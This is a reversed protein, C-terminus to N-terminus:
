GFFAIKIVGLILASLLGIIAANERGLRKLKGEVTNKWLRDIVFAKIVAKRWEPKNAELLDLLALTPFDEGGLNKEEDNEKTM